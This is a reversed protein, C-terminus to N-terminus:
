KQINNLKEKVFDLYKKTQEPMEKRPIFFSSSLYKGDLVFFYPIQDGDFPLPLSDIQYVDLLEFQTKLVHLDRIPIDSIMLLIKEKCKVHKLINENVFTICDNCSFTSYRVILSPDTVIDKLLVTQGKSNILEIENSLAIDNNYFTVIQDEKLIEENLKSIFGTESKPQEMRCGVCVSVSLLFLIYTKAKM